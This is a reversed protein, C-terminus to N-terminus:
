SRARCRGRAAMSWATVAAPPPTKLQPRDAQPCAVGAGAAGECLGQGALSPPRGAARLSFRGIGLIEVPAGYMESQKEHATPFAKVLADRWTASWDPHCLFVKGPTIAFPRLPSQNVFIHRGLGAAVDPWYPNFHD